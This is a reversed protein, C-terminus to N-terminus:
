RTPIGSTRKDADKRTKFLNYFNNDSKLGLVTVCKSCFKGNSGVSYQIEDDPIPAM